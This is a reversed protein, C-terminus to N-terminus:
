PRFLGHVRAILPLSVMFLAVIAFITEFVPLGLPLRRMGAITGLDSCVRFPPTSSPDMGVAPAPLSAPDGFRVSIPRSRGGCRGLRRM